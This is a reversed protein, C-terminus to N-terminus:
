KIRQPGTRRSDSGGWQQLNHKDVYEAAEFIVNVVKQWKERQEASLGDRAPILPKIADALRASIELAGDMIQVTNRLYQLEQKDSM